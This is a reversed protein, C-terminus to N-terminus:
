TPQSAHFQVSCRARDVLRLAVDYSHGSVAAPDKDFDDAFIQSALQLLHPFVIRVPLEDICFM